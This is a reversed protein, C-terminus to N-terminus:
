IQLEVSVSELIDVPPLYENVNNSFWGVLCEEETSKEQYIRGIEIWEIDDAEHKHKPFHCQEHNVSM